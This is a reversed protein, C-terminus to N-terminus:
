SDSVNVGFYDSVSSIDKTEWMGVWAKEVIGEDNIVMTVPTVMLKAKQADKTEVTLVDWDEIAYSKIYNKIAQVDTETTIATVKFKHHDINAVFNKWYAMQQKCYGCTTKFFLLIRKNNKTYDVRVGNGNMDKANFSEIVDGETVQITKFEKIDSRLKLNQFILSINTIFLVIAILVIFVQSKDKIHKM